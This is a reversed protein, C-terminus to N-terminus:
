RRKQCPSWVYGKALFRMYRLSTLIPWRLFLGEAIPATVAFPLSPDLLEGRWVHASENNVAGRLFALLRGVFQAKHAHSFKEYSPWELASLRQHCCRDSNDCEMQLM